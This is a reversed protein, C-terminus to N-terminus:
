STAQFPCRLCANIRHRPRRPRTLDPKTGDDSIMTAHTAGTAFFLPMVIMTALLRLRNNFVM